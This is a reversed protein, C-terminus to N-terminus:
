SRTVKSVTAPSHDVKTDYKVLYDVNADDIIPILCVNGGFIASAEPARAHVVTMEAGESVAPESLPSTTPTRKRGGKVKPPPPGAIPTPSYAPADDRTAPVTAEVSLQDADTPTRQSEDMNCTSLQVLSHPAPTTSHTPCVIKSQVM